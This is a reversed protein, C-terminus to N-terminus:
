FTGVLFTLTRTKSIVKCSVFHKSGSRVKKQKFPKPVAAKKEDKDVEYNFGLNWSLAQRRYPTVGFLYGRSIIKTKNMITMKKLLRSSVYKKHIPTSLPTALYRFISLEVPNKVSIEFM